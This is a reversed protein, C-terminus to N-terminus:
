SHADFNVKRKHPAFSSFVKLTVQVVVERPAYVRRLHHEKKAGAILERITELGSSRLRKGIQQWLLPKQKYNL